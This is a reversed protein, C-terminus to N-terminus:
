LEAHISYTVGFAVFNLSIYYTCQFRSSKPVNPLVKGLVNVNRLVNRLRSRKQSSNRLVNRLVNGFATSIWLPVNLRTSVYACSTMDTFESMWKASM